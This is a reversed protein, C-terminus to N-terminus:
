KSRRELQVQLPPTADDAVFIASCSLFGIFVGCNMVIVRGGDCSVSKVM